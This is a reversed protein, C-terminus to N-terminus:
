HNCENVDRDRNRAFPSWLQHDISKQVHKSVIRGCIMSSMVSPFVYMVMPVLLSPQPPLLSCILSDVSRPKCIRAPLFFPLVSVLVRSKVPATCHANVFSPQPISLVHIVIGRILLLLFPNRVNDPSVSHVQERLCRPVHLKITCSVDM